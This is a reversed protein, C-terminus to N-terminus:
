MAAFLKKQNESVDKNHSKQGLLSTSAPSEIEYDVQFASVQAASVLAAIALLKVM